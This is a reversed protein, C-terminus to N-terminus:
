APVIGIPTSGFAAACAVENITGDGGWAIVLPSGAAVAESAWRRADGVGTTFQVDAEVGCSALTDIVLACTDPMHERVHGSGSIPNIIVTARTM